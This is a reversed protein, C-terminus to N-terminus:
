AVVVVFVVDLSSQSVWTISRRNRDSIFQVDDNAIMILANTMSGGNLQGDGGTITSYVLGAIVLARFQIRTACTFSENLVIYFRHDHSDHDDSACKM